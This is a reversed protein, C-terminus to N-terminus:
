SSAVAMPAKELVEKDDEPQTATIASPPTENGISTSLYFNWFVSCVSMFAVRGPLPVVRYFLLAM